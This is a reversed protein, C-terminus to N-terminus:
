SSIRIKKQTSKVAVKPEKWSIKIDLQNKTNDKRKAKVHFRLLANPHLTIEETESSLVIKGNGFGEVLSELFAKISTADQLSDFEFKQENAM